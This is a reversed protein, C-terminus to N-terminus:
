AAQNALVPVQTFSSVEGGAKGPMPLRVTVTTGRGPRAEVVISGGQLAILSEARRTLMERDQQDAGLGDDTVRIHLQSGLTVTTVLVQGGAAAHIATLMTEQLAMGLAGPDVRVTMAASLALDIRVWNARALSDLAAAVKRVAAELDVTEAEFRTNLGIAEAVEYTATREGVSVRRRHTFAIWIALCFPATLAMLLGSQVTSM